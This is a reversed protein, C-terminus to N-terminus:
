PMIVLKRGGEMRSHVGIDELIRRVGSLKVDRTMKGGFAVKPIRGEYVVTIDYWRELQRMVEQLGVGDFNFLGNKWAMVPEIDISNLIKIGSKGDLAAQQGPRIKVKGTQDKVEVSGELLTVKVEAEDDYANVNFHTGLVRVQMDEKEVIFPIVKKDESESSTGSIFHAVEFYAEGTVSVKRENGIFAVPYTISSGANLWVKSGDALIIDIVPSGRPNTLTNYMIEHEEGRKEGSAKYVIRGDVIRIVSVNSETLSTLSDVSVARGNALAITAKTIKPAQVDNYVIQLGATTGASNDRKNFLLYYSAAGLVLLISAAAIWPRWSFQRVNAKSGPMSQELSPHLINQFILASKGAPMDQGNASKEWYAALLEKIKEDNAKVLTLVALEEEETESCANNMYRDFLYHLREDPM